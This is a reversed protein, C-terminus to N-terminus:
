YAGGLKRHDWSTRRREVFELAVRKAAQKDVMEGVQPPLEEAPPQGRPSAYRAFIERGLAKVTEFDRHLVADCELMVGRLLEYSEDAEVQLTARPDRELNRV